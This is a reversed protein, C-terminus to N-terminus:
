QEGNLEKQYKDFEESNCYIFHGPAVERMTPGEQQYNHSAVPNYTVRTRKKEYNPDPLPIASLLSKT